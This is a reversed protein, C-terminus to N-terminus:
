KHCKSTPCTLHSFIAGALKAGPGAFVCVSVSVSVSVSVCVCVCVCVCACVCLEYWGERGGM